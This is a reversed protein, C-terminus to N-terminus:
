AVHRKWETMLKHLQMIRCHLPLPLAPALCAAADGQRVTHQLSSGRGRRAGGAPAMSVGNVKEHFLAFASSDEYLLAWLRAASCGPLVLAVDVGKVMENVGRGSGWQGQCRQQKNQWRAESAESPTACPHTM